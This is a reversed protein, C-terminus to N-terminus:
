VGKLWENAFDCIEEYAQVEDRQRPVVYGGEHIRLNWFAYLDDKWLGNACQIVGFRFKVKNDKSVYECSFSEGSQIKTICNQYDFWSFIDELRNEM